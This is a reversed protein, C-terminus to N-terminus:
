SRPEFHASAHVHGLSPMGPLRPVRVAVRVEGGRSSSVRLGRELSASLHDRAARGPDSGVAQARAAARAAARSGWHAYGVLALQWLAAALLVLVPLLAVFEVAAQGRSDGLPARTM